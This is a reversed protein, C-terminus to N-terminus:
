SVSPELDRLMGLLRFLADPAGHFPVTCVRHAHRRQITTWHLLDSASTGTLLLTPVWRTRRDVQLWDVLRDMATSPALPVNLLIAHPALASVLGGIAPSSDGEDVETAVCPVHGLMTLLRGLDTAHELQESIILLRLAWGWQPM